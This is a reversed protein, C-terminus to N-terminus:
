VVIVVKKKNRENNGQQFIKERLIGKNKQQKM